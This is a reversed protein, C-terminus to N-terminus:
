SALPRGRLRRRRAPNRLPLAASAPSSAAVRQLAPRNRARRGSWAGALGGLWGAIGLSLAVLASFEYRPYTEEFSASPDFVGRRISGADRKPMGSAGRTVGFVFYRPLLGGTTPATQRHNPRNDTNRSM